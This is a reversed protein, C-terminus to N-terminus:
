KKMNKVSKLNNVDKSEMFPDFPAPPTDFHCCIYACRRM